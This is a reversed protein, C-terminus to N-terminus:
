INQELAFFFRALFTFSNAGEFVYISQRHPFETKEDEIVHIGRSAGGKTAMTAAFSQSVPQLSLSLVFFIVRFGYFIV